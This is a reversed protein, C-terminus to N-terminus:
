YVEKKNRQQEVSVTSTGACSPKWSARDLGESGGDCVLREVIDSLESVGVKPIPGRRVYRFMLFSGGFIAYGGLGGEPPTISMHTKQLIMNWGQDRTKLSMIM